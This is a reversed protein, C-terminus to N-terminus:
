RGIFYFNFFINNSVINTRLKGLFYSQRVLALFGKQSEKEDIIENMLEKLTSFNRKREQNEEKLNNYISIEIDEHFDNSYINLLELFNNYYEEGFNLKQSSDSFVFIKNQNSITTSNSDIIKKIKQKNFLNGMNFSEIELKSYSKKFDKEYKARKQGIPKLWIFLYLLAFSIKTEDLEHNFKIEDGSEISSLILAWLFYANPIMIEDCQEGINDNLYKKSEIENKNKLNMKIFREAYQLSNTILNEVFFYKIYNDEFKRFFFEEHAFYKRECMFLKKITKKVQWHKPFNNKKAFSDKESDICNIKQNVQLSLAQMYFPKLLQSNFNEIQIGTLNKEMKEIIKDNKYISQINTVKKKIYQNIISMFGKENKGFIDPRSLFLLNNITNIQKKFPILIKLDEFNEGFNQKKLVEYKKEDNLTAYFIEILKFFPFIFLKEINNILMDRTSGAGQINIINKVKIESGFNNTIILKNINENLIDSNNINATVFNNDYYIDEKYIIYERNNSTLTIKYIIDPTLIKQDDETLKFKIIGNMIKQSEEDNRRRIIKIFELQNKNSNKLFHLSESNFKIKSSSLNKYIELDSQSKLDASHFPKFYYFEDFTTENIFAITNNSSDMMFYYGFPIKMYKNINKILKDDTFNCKKCYTLLNKEDDESLKMKNFIQSIENLNKNEENMFDIIEPIFDFEEKINYFYSTFKKMRYGATLNTLFSPSGFTVVGICNKEKKSLSNGYYKDMSQGILLIYFALSSAIVGGMRKGTLIIPGKELLSFILITPLKQLVFHCPSIINYEWENIFDKFFQKFRDESKIDFSIYYVCKQNEIITTVKIEIEDFRGIIINEDNEDFILKNCNSIITELAESLVIIQKTNEEIKIKFSNESLIARPSKLTHITLVKSSITKNNQFIKLEFIYETNPKLNIVEYSTENGIYISEFNGAEEKQELIYEYPGDSDKEQIKHSWYLELCCCEINKAFFVFEM